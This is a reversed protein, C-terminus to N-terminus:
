LRSQHPRHLVKWMRDPRVWGSGKRRLTWEPRDNHVRHLHQGLRLVQELRVGHDRHGYGEAELVDRTREEDTCSLLVALALAIKKM